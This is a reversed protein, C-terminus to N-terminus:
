IREYVTAITKGWDLTMTGRWFVSLYESPIQRGVGIVRAGKKLEGVKRGVGALLPPEFCTSHTFVLDVGSIDLQLLDGAIIEIEQQQREGPLAPRVQEQYRGLVQRSIEVLDTLLEIGVLRSFDFLMAALFLAKGSGSGLDCFVGGAPPAAKSLVHHFSELTVEGYILSRDELSDRRRQGHSIEYASVGAYLRDFMEKATALEM